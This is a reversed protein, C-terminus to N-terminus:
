VRSRLHHLLNQEGSLEKPFGEDSIVVLTSALKTWLHSFFVIWSGTLFPMQEIRSVKQHPTEKAKPTPEVILNQTSLQNSLIGFKEKGM